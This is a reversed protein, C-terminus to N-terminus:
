TDKNQGKEEIKAESSSPQPRQKPLSNTAAVPAWGLATKKQESTLRQKYSCSRFQSRTLMWSVLLPVQGLRSPHGPDEARRERGQESGPRWQGMGAAEEAGLKQQVTARCGTGASVDQRELKSSGLTRSSCCSRNTCLPNTFRLRGEMGGRGLGAAM